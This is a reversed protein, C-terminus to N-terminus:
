IYNYFSFKSPINTPITALVLTGKWDFQPPLEILKNISSVFLANGSMIAFDGKLGETIMKINTSLGYGRNEAEPRDKTSYGEKAIEVACIDSNQIETLFKNAKVYSGYISLGGDALVIELQEKDTNFNAFIYGILANSHQQMNDTIESVLYSFPQLIDAFKNSQITMDSKVKDIVKNIDEMAKLGFATASKLPTNYNINNYIEIIANSTALESSISKQNVYLFYDEFIDIVNGIMTDIKYFCFYLFLVSLCFINQFIMAHINKNTCKPCFFLCSYDLRNIKEEGSRLFM